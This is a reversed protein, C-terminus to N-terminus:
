LVLDHNKRLMQAIINQVYKGPFKKDEGELAGPDVPDGFEVVVKQSKLWPFHEEFVNETNTIAVPIIPCGTKTAVKFSGEKFEGMEDGSSRTGEPFICVSERGSKILAICDLICRMGQKIDSRDLFTCHLIKMWWSIFPVKELSKKAMISTPNNMCPFASIIDFFSRHNCIYLVARDKPVREQGIVTLKTGAIGNLLRFGNAVCSFAFRVGRDRDSRSLIFYVLFLPISVIFYAVLYLLALITRIM